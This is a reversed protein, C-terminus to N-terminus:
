TCVKECFTCQHVTGSVLGSPVKDMPNQMKGKQRTTSTPRENSAMARLRKYEHGGARRIGSVIREFATRGLGFDEECKLM